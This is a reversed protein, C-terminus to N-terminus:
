ADNKVKILEAVISVAIEEPTESNIDIGIPAHVRNIDEDSFGEKRLNKSFTKWKQRSCIVGIYKCEVNLLKKLLRFDINHSPSVIVVFDLPNISAEDVLRDFPKIIRESNPFRIKSAMEEREDYVKVSFGCLEAILATPKAIHGAGFIHVVSPMILPEIFIEVEGGCLMGTSTEGESSPDSKEHLKFSLRRTEGSIISQIAADIAQRELTAGGITGITSGDQHVLMKAGTHRPVSGKVSIITVMASPLNEQFAKEAAELISQIENM